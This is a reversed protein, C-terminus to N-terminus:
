TIDRAPKGDWLWRMVHFGSPTLWFRAGDDEDRVPREQYSIEFVSNRIDTNTQNKHTRQDVDLQQVRSPLVCFHFKWGRVKRM